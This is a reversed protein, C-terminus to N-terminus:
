AFWDITYAEAISEVGIVHTKMPKIEIISQKIKSKNQLFNLVITIILICCLFLKYM